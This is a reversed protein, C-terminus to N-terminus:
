RQLATFPSPSEGLSESKRTAWWPSAEDDNSLRRYKTNSEVCIIIVDPM